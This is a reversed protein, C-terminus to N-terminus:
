YSALTSSFYYLICCECIAYYNLKLMLPFLCVYWFVIGDEIVNVQAYMEGLLMTMVWTASPCIVSIYVDFKLIQLMCYLLKSLINVSHRRLEVLYYKLIWDTGWLSFKVMVFSFLIVSNLTIIVTQQSFWVYYSMFVLHLTVTKQLIAPIYIVV